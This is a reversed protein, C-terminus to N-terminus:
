CAALRAAAAIRLDLEDGTGVNMKVNADNELVTFAALLTKLALLRRQPSSAYELEARALDAHVNLLRSMSCSEKGQLRGMNLIRTTRRLTALRGDKVLLLRAEIEPRTARELPKVRSEDLMGNTKLPLEVARMAQNDKQLLAVEADSLANDLIERRLASELEEVETMEAPDDAHLGLSLGCLCGALGILVVSIRLNPRM